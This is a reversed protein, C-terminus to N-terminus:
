QALASNLAKFDFRSDLISALVTLKQMHQFRSKALAAEIASVVEAIDKNVVIVPVKKDEAKVMVSMSPMQKTVILCRTSTDLAALQMDPRESRTVFAKNRKRSYYDRASDPTMAGLMVNEVLDGAKEKSSIIEAGLAAAIEAVSVGLLPRSEPLVGLVAVGRSKFYGECEAKLASLKNEPVQNVVIGALRAGLKTVVQDIEADRYDTSYCILFVVRTNVKEAITYCALTSVKDNRLSGPSEVILIDKGSAVRDCASKIKDAFSDADESLSHWLKEQSINFACSEQKDEGLELAENIFVADPCGDASTAETLNIPKIYGVRKGGSILKKGIGACLATKGCSEYSVIQLTTM